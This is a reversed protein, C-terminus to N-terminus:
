TGVNSATNAEGSGGGIDNDTIAQNLTKNIGNATVYVARDQTLAM